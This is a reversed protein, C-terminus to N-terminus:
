VLKQRRSMFLGISHYYETKSHSFSTFIREVSSLAASLKSKFHHLPEAVESQKSPVTAVIRFNVEYPVGRDDPTHENYSFSRGVTAPLATEFFTVLLDPRRDILFKALLRAAPRAVDDLHILRVGRKKAEEVAEPLFVDAAVFPEGLASAKAVDDATAVAVVRGALRRGEPELEFM